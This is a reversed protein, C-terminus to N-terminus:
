VDEHHDDMETGNWLANAAGDPRLLPSREASPASKMRGTTYNGSSYSSRRQRQGSSEDRDGINKREQSTPTSSVHGDRERQEKPLSAASQTRLNESDLIELNQQRKDDWSDLLEQVSLLCPVARLAWVPLQLKEWRGSKAVNYLFFGVLTIGYGSAVKFTVLDGYLVVGMVITFINRVSGLVKMTLSSTVQIVLYSMFNVCLGMTSALLFVMFNKRIVSLAGASYMESGEYCFSAFFLWFATAPALVYQGEIIGFKLNQLLFQTMLLRIAETLEALFMVVLGLISLEPTYSCTAATGLSIVAVSFMTPLNPNELKAIVSTLLIIVPTFSKLMQIFGVNLLLYVTNGFALTGAHALGVPLVRKYWLHGEVQEKKSLQVFGFMVILRAVLASVAVGLGSLFMPYPFDLDTLIHKNLLILAPGIVMYVACILVTKLHKKITTTHEADLLGFGAVTSSEKGDEPDDTSGGNQWRKYHKYAHYIALSTLM